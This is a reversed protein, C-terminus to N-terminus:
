EREERRETHVRTEGKSRGGVIMFRGEGGDKGGGGRHEAPLLWVNQEALHQVEESVTNDPYGHYQSYNLDDVCDEM